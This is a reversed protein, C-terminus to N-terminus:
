RLYDAPSFTVAYSAVIPGFLSMLVVVFNGGVFSAVASLSLAREAEGRRALLTGDLTSMVASADGSLNLLISSIRGGYEAGSYIDALLILASGPPLNLGYAIPILIAVGNIPGIGPLAGILTGAFCGALVLFLNFPTLAVAFGQSLGPSSPM